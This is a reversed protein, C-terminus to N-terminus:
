FESNHLLISIFLSGNPGDYLEVYINDVIKVIKLSEDESYQPFMPTTRLSSAIKCKIKLKDGVAFRLSVSLTSAEGGWGGGGGM